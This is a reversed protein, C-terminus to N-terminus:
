SDLLEAEEGSQMFPILKSGAFSCGVNLRTWSRYFLVLWTKGRKKVNDHYWTINVTPKLDAAGEIVQQRQLLNMFHFLNLSLEWVEIFNVRVPLM